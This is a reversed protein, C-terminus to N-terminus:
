TQLVLTGGAHVKLGGRVVVVGGGVGGQPGLDLGHGGHGLLDLVLEAVM